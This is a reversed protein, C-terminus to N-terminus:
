YNTGVAVHQDGCDLPIALATAPLHVRTAAPAHRVDAVLTEYGRNAFLGPLDCADRGDRAYGAVASLDVGEVIGGRYATVALLRRRGEVDARAFTLAIDPDAIEVTGREAAPMTEDFAPEWNGRLSAF